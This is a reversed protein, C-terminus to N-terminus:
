HLILLRANLTICAGTNRIGTEVEMEVKMLMSSDTLHLENRNESLVSEEKMNRAKRCGTRFGGDLFDGIREIAFCDFECHCM